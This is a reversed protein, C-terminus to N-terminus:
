RGSGCAARSSTRTSSPASARTAPHRRPRAARGGARQLEDKRRRRPAGHDGRRDPRRGHVGPEARRARGPLDDRHQRRPGAAAGERVPRAPERRSCRGRRHHERRRCCASSRWRRSARARARSASSASRRTPALDFSVDDVAHVIGDDTKFDVTCTACRSCPTPTAMLAEVAPRLRRAARRRPLERALRHAAAHPGPLLAPLVEVDVDVYAEADSLMLGWSNQPPQVGFGLFSLTARRHDRGRDGLTANVM